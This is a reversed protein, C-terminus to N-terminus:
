IEIGNIFTIIQNHIKKKVNVRLKYNIFHSIRLLKLNNKECYKNKINDRNQREELGAKGGFWDYCANHQLGDFEICLNYKPIFFDFYLNNKNKLGEFTKQPVYDIKNELLIEDILCEGISKNCKKCGAGALHLFPMQFFVGHEKCLIKTHIKSSIYISQSYDYKNNHKLQCIKIWEETSYKKVKSCYPCGVNNNLLHRIAKSSLHGNEKCIVEIKQTNGTYINFDQYNFYKNDKLLEKVNDIKLITGM